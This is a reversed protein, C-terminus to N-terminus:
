PAWTVSNDTSTSAANLNGALDVARGTAITALVTGGTTMGSVAVNYTTGSGTVTVTKTGGATGSITVDTGDFGTVSESFVVTFNIPAVNTTGAQTTAQNITVTPAVSDRTVSNDTSTSATNNTGSVDKAKGSGLSVTVTGQQTMGSITLVYSSGSGTLTRTGGLLNSVTFDGSALGSVPESFEVAFSMSSGNTPDAQGAAQNVTVSPALQNDWTITRGAAGSTTALNDNGATDTAVAAAVTAVITGDTTMGTVAVNYTTGSGTVTGVLTGLATGSFSVDGTQFNAVPESFTVTFNLPSGTQNANGVRVVTVSPATTDRTVSNDTSTSAVNSNGALDTAVAAQIAAIVTGESTMGSVAVNYTTGSGTVTGVKTGSTTGSITVDGTAFGTVPESFVVTYNISSANSPDSQGAAQNITVSPATTDRTVENDTSTSAENSNGTADVAVASGISAIVTGDSAMGTVAVTYTTGSGTVTATKTGTATGTITVDGTAFGTVPESFVVTYNISSANSPDSQGAAQNITVSPATADRTVTNDTSTSAVNSNGAQDTAVASGISAIVTGDGAIGTVAVTYTTGSGTVTATKTGSATGTITVDGTAFGTVAESFVVTFSISSGNTPDAQTAAQNITVSPATTDRTVMNDTSTSALNNNGALDTARAALITAIVTGESTMGSVAVNYTTGSGTVTGVKTGSTTGSITVDGTTFGTVAESFVVTYNISSNNSPDSQGAAQNITVTPSTVDRTVTNDTSTSAENTNGYADNALGAAITAVITGEGAIGTVAVNYTSGSGTVTAVPVGPATGSVTVDGTTFGTVNHNFVVTFNITSANSPDAQAAAQNITVRLPSGDYQVSNDTSTSATNTNGAQDLVGAAPVSVIVTGDGSMGSVSVTYTPGSGSVTAVKTGGSTGGVSVDEATFGSVAESFVVTFSVPSANTPDAQGASQNVTVTPATNDVVINKQVAYYTQSNIVGVARMDFTGSAPATNFNCSGEPGPLAVCGPIDSWPGNGNNAVSYQFKVTSSGSGGNVIRGTLSVVGRTPSPVPDIVMGPTNRVESSVEASTQSNGEADLAIARLYYIGDTVATTNWTCSYPSTTDPTPCISTWTSSADARYQIDVSAIASISDNATAGITVTGWLAYGPDTVAVMPPTWDPASSISVPSNSQDTWEASSFQIGALASVGVLLASLAYAVRAFV